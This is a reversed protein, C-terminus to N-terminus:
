RLVQGWAGASVERRGCVTRAAGAARSHAPLVRHDAHGRQVGVCSAQGAGVRRTVRALGRGRQARGFATGASGAGGSHNRFCSQREPTLPQAKAKVLSHVLGSSMRTDLKETLSIVSALPGVGTM